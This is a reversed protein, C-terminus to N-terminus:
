ITLRTCELHACLYIEWIVLIVGSIISNELNRVENRTNISQDNFLTIKLDDPLQKVSEDLVIKIKDSTKLLNEGKKKVINLSIVPFGDARAISTQEKFGM